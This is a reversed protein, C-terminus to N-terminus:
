VSCTPRDNRSEIPLTGIVLPSTRFQAVLAVWVPDTRGIADVCNLRYGM